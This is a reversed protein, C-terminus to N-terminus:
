LGAGAEVHGDVWGGDEGGVDVGRDGAGVGRVQQRVGGEGEFGRQGGGGPGIRSEAAPQRIDDAGLVLGDGPGALLRHHLQGPLRPDHALQVPTM